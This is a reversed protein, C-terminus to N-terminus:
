LSLLRADGAGVFDEEFGGARAVAVVPEGEEEFAAEDVFAEGSEAGIAERLAGWAGDVDGAVVVAEFQEGVRGEVEVFVVPEAQESGVIKEGVKEGAEVGGLHGAALEAVDGADGAEDGGAEGAGFFRRAM